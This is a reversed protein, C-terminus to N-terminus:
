SDPPFFPRRVFCVMALSATCDFLEVGSSELLQKLLACFDGTSEQALPLPAVLALSHAGGAAAWSTTTRGRFSSRSGIGARPSRVEWNVHGCPSGAAKAADILALIQDKGDGGKPREHM